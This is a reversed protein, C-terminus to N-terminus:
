PCRGKAKSNLRVEITCSELIVNMGTQNGTDGQMRRRLGDSEGRMDRGFIVHPEGASGAAVATPLGEMTAELNWLLARKMDDLVPTWALAAYARAQQSDHLLHGEKSVNDDEYPGSRSSGNTGDPKRSLQRDMGRGWRTEYYQGIVIESEEWSCDVFEVTLDPGAAAYISAISAGRFTIGEFRVTRLKFRVDLAEVELPNDLLIVHFSGSELVCNDSLAGFNGCTYVTGDLTATLFDNEGVTYVTHPCLRYVYPPGERFPNGRFITNISEEEFECILDQLTPYGDTVAPDTHCGARNFSPPTSYDGSGPTANSSDRFADYVCRGDQAGVFSPCLPLFALLVFSSILM